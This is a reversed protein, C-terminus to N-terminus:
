LGLFKGFCTLSLRELSQSGRNQNYRYSADAAAAATAALLLRCPSM